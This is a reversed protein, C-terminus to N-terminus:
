KLSNKVKMKLLKWWMKSSYSTVFQVSVINMDTEVNDMVSYITTYLYYSKFNVM